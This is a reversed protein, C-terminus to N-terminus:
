SIVLTNNGIVEWKLGNWRLYAYVTTANATGLTTGAAGANTLGTISITGSPISGATSCGVKMTEGVCSGDPIGKTTTSSATGTVSLFYTAWLNKGTLVTTGVVVNDLVGGARKINIVRWKSNESWVFEIEQGVTDFFFTSSCVYGSTTEPTTVTLTAAPTSAASICRVRKRQGKFTGDGLTFAMTSSVALQSEYVTNDLTTATTDLTEYGTPQQNVAALIKTWASAARDAPSQAAGAEASPLFVNPDVRYTRSNSM